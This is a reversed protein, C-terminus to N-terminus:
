RCSRQGPGLVLEDERRAVAAVALLGLDLLVRAVPAAALADEVELDAGLDAVGQREDAHGLFLEQEDRRLALDDPDLRGLEPRQAPGGLADPDDVQVLLVADAGDGLDALASTVDYSRLSSRRRGSRGGPAPRADPLDIEQAAQGDDQHDAVM